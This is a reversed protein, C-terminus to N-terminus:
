RNSFALNRGKADECGDFGLCGKPRRCPSYPAAPSGGAPSLAHHPNAALILGKMGKDAGKPRLGPRTLRIPKRGMVMVSYSMCSEGCARLTRSRAESSLM